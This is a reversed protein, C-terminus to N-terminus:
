IAHHYFNLIINKMCHTSSINYVCLITTSRRKTSSLPPCKLAYTWTYTWSSTNCTNMIFIAIVQIWNSNLTRDIHCISLPLKNLSRSNLEVGDDIPQWWWFPPSQQIDSNSSSGLQYHKHNSRRKSHYLFSRDTLSM